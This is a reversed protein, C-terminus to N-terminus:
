KAFQNLENPADYDAYPALAEVMDSVFASSILDERGLKLIIDTKVKGSPDRRNHVLQLYTYSKGNQKVKSKRVFM